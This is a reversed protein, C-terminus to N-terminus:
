HRWTLGVFPNFDPASDTVGFNCGLDLRLNANLAYTLGGGVQGVWDFDGAASV